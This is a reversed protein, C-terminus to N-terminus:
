HLLDRLASGQTIEDTTLVQGRKAFYSLMAQHLSPDPDMCADSVVVTHLGVDLAGQLTSLVVGTTAIGCIVVQVIGRERLYPVLDTDHFPNPGPCPWVKEKSGSASPPQLPQLLAKSEATVSARMSRLMPRVSSIDSREDTVYRAADNAAGAGENVTVHVLLAADDDDDDSRQLEHVSAALRSANAVARQMDPLRDSM